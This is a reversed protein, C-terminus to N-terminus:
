TTKTLLMEYTVGYKEAIDKAYSLGKPPAVEVEYLRKGEEAKVVLSAAKAKVDGDNIESIELALKHMHTNYITRIGKKLIARSCDRAIYYGEEFSTTSFTENLLMLSKETANEYLERFRKCEEGLRGLDMTKDEDAPFHTFIDDVPLYRFKSCPVYIGAQAMFFLQGVSQTITTKGGMNAGTLIYLTHESTFDLNNKVIDKFASSHESLLKVNYIGEADMFLANEASQSLAEPADIVEPKCFLAGKDTMKEIYEAWRVYFIFEPMLDTIDNVTLMTYKNLVNRLHKVTQSLMRDTIKDMYNTIEKTTDDAESVKMVSMMALPSFVPPVFDAGDNLPGKAVIEDFRYDEKWDAEENINDKGSVKDMFHKVLNSKTFPKSNVSILGVGSAEFRENLNIGVTVSKLCSTDARLEAIDKKLEEFGNDEYLDSVYKKLGLLGQSHIDADSLCKHIAGISEIYDGIEELRHVLDWIGPDHDNDHRYSGYEKLFNVKDLLDLLEARMAKNKYIDDFVDSRYRANGPDATIMKMVNMIYTQENKEGSLKSLVTDMGIDHVTLDSLKRYPLSQDPFLLSYKNSM